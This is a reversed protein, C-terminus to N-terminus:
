AMCFTQVFPPTDHDNGNKKAKIIHYADTHQQEIEPMDEGRVKRPCPQNQVFLMLNTLLNM